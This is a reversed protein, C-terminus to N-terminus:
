FEFFRVSSKNHVDGGDISRTTLSNSAIFSPYFTAPHPHLPPRRHHHKGVSTDNPFAMRRHGNLRVFFVQCTASCQRINARVSAPPGELQWIRDFPRVAPGIPVLWRLHAPM